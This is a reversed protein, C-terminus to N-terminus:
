MRRHFFLTGLCRFCVNVISHQRNEESDVMDEIVKAIQVAYRTFTRAVVDCLLATDFIKEISHLDEAVHEEAGVRNTQKMVRRRTKEIGDRVVLMTSLAEIGEAVRVQADEICKLREEFDNIRGVIQEETERLEDTLRIESNPVILKV